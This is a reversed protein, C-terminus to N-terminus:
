SWSLALTSTGSGIGDGSWTGGAAICARLPLMILGGGSSCAMCMRLALESFPTMPADGVGEPVEVACEACGTDGM